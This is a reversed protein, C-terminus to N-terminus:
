KPPLQVKGGNVWATLWYSSVDTAADSIENVLIEGVQGYFRDYYEDTYGTLGERARRDALLIDELNSHATLCMEFAYDTPDHIYTAQGPHVLFFLFYRDFLSAGFRLNVQPQGSLRGDDNVTTNFPDHAEAVYYALAPTLTRVQDWNHQQFAATLRASLAGIQWPLQGHGELMSKSFKHVAAKYDRPLAAFPFSGYHDLQIFHNTKESTDRLPSEAPDNVHQVILRRNAEFFPRMEEPLVDIAKNTIQRLANANWALLPIPLLAVALLLCLATRRLAM